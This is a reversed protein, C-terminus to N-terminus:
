RGKVLQAIADALQELGAADELHMSLQKVYSTVGVRTGVLAGIMSAISDSDGPTNVGLYIAQELQDPLLVFLYVTAAMADDAAWGLFETFVRDHMKRYAGTHDTLAAIVNNNYTQLLPKAKRAYHVAKRMKDATTTDYREAAEIMLNITQQINKGSNPVCHAIGVAMAACAALAIPDGHTLKSQEVAWLEAKKPNDSFLLGFPYARMVSGCGGTKGNAQSVDWWRKQQVQKQNIKNELITCYKKCCNGPARLPAAWGHPNNMDQVFRVALDSMGEELNFNKKKATILMEMALKCMATDDTYPAISASGTLQQGIQWDHANFDAFSHIGNPYTAFIAATPNIFETVRGLADGIASGLICGRFASTITITEIPKYFKQKSLLYRFSMAASAVVGLSLVLVITVAGKPASTYAM